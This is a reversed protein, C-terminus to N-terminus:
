IKGPDVHTDNQMMSERIAFAQYKDSCDVATNCLSDMNEKEIDMSEGKDLRIAQLQKMNEEDQEEMSNEMELLLRDSEEQVQRMEKKMEAIQSETSNRAATHYLELEVDKTVIRQPILITKDLLLEFSGDQKSEEVVLHDSHENRTSQHEELNKVTPKVDNLCDRIEYKIEMKEAVKPSICEKIDEVALKAPQLSDHPPQKIEKTKRSCDNGQEDEKLKANLKVITRNALALEKQLGEITENAQKLASTIRIDSNGDAHCSKQETSECIRHRSNNATKLNQHQPSSAGSRASSPTTATPSGLAQLIAPPDGDKIEQRKRLDILEARTLAYSRIAQLISSTDLEHQKGLIIRVLRQADMLQRQMALYEIPDSLHNNETPVERPSDESFDDLLHKKMTPNAMIDINPERMPSPPVVFPDIMIEQPPNFLRTPTYLIKTTLGVDPAQSSNKRLKTIQQRDVKPEALVDIERNGHNRANEIDHEFDEFMFCPHDAEMNPSYGGTNSKTTMMVQEEVLKREENEHPVSKRRPSHATYQQSDNRIITPSGKSSIAGTEVRQVEIRKEKAVKCKERSLKPGSWNKLKKLNM